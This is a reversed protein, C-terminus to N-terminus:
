LGNHPAPMSGDFGNKIKDKYSYKSIDHFDVVTLKSDRARKTPRTTYLAVSPHCHNLLVNLTFSCSGYTTSLSNV